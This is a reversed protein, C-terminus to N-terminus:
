SARARRLASNAISRAETRTLGTRSAAEIVLDIMDGRSVQGTHVHEALRCAAWFTASNREGEKAQLIVRILPELDKDSRLKRVSPRDGAAPTEPPNLKRMTWDPVEALAGGHLIDFGHAPWWIIYGGRGRTDVGRHIKGASCGFDARPKFLLHRGTSRTVHTRTTPLNAKAYWEQSEPHKAFDLDLVVFKHGTPTGILADPWRKWWAEIIGVDTTADKFGHTTHPKKDDDHRPLNKCPFVPIGKAALALAKKIIM